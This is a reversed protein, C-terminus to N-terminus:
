GKKKLNKHTVFVRDFSHLCVVEQRSPLSKFPVFFLRFRTSKTEIFRRVTFCVTLKKVKHVSLLHVTQARSANILVVLMTLKLTLDKLSLHKVPTLKKLFVLVVKCLM